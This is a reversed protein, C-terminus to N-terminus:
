PCPLPRSSLLILYLQYGVEWFVLSPEYVKTGFRRELAGAWDLDQTYLDLYRGPVFM